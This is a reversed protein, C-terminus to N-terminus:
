RFDYLGDRSSTSGLLSRIKDDDVRHVHCRRKWGTHPRLFDASNVSSSSPPSSPTTVYIMVERLLRERERKRERTERCHIRNAEREDRRKRDSSIARTSVAGGSRTSTDKMKSKPPSVTTVGLLTALLHHYSCYEAIILQPIHTVDLLLDLAFCSDKCRKTELVLIRLLINKPDVHIASEHEKMTRATVVKIM